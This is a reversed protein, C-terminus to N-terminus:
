WTTLDNRALKQVLSILLLMSKKHLDKLVRSLTVTAKSYDSVAHRILMDGVNVNDANSGRGTSDVDLGDVTCLTHLLRRRIVPFIGLSYRKSM